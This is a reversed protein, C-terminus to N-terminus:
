QEAQQGRTHQMHLRRVLHLKPTHEKPRAPSGSEPVLLCIIRRIVLKVMEIQLFPNFIHSVQIEFDHVLQELFTVPSCLAAPM